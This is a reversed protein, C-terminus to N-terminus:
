LDLPRWKRRDTHSQLEQWGWEDVDPNAEMGSMNLSASMKAQPDAKKRGQSGKGEQEDQGM